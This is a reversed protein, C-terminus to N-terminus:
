IQTPGGDALIRVVPDNNMEEVAVEPNLLWRSLRERDEKEYVLFRANEDFLGWRGFGSPQDIAISEPTKRGEGSSPMTCSPTLTAELFDGTLSDAKISLDGLHHPEYEQYVTGSPEKLFDQLGLLKM